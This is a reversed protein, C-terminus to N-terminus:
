KVYKIGKLDSSQLYSIFNWIKSGLSKIKDLFLQTESENLYNRDTSRIIQSRLEGLSGKSIFLFQVFEKNGNREFGEAINDMVSGSSDLMQQRLGWDKRYFEKEVLIFIEKSLIRAEQWIELDQFNKITAM